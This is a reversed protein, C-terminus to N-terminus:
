VGAPPALPWPYGEGLNLERLLMPGETGALAVTTTPANLTFCTPTTGDEEVTRIDQFGPHILRFIPSQITLWIIREAHPFHITVTVFGRHDCFVRLGEGPAVEGRLPLSFTFGQFKFLDGVSGAPATRLNVRIQNM